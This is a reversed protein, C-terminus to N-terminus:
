LHIHLISENLDMEIDEFIDVKEIFVLGVNVGWRKLKVIDFENYVEDIESCKGLLNHDPTPYCCKVIRVIDGKKM